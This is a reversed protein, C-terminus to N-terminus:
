EKIMKKIKNATMEKSIDQAIFCVAEQYEPSLKKIRIRFVRENEEIVQKDYGSIPMYVSLDNWVVKAELSLYNLYEEDEKKIHYDCLIKSLNMPEPISKLIEIGRRLSYMDFSTVFYNEKTNEIGFDEIAKYDDIDVLMYDYQLKDESIGLYQCMDDIRKFGVAFDINEFDTIYDKTPNIAPVVYKTKQTITTDAVIVKKGTAELAKAIYIILDTKDAAGIFGVKKM